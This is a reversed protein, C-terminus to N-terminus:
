VPILAGLSWLEPHPHGLARTARPDAHPATRPRPPLHSTSTSSAPGSLLSSPPVRCSRTAVRSGAAVRLERHVLPRTHSPVCAPCQSTLVGNSPPGHTRERLLVCVPLGPRRRRTECGPPSHQSWAQVPHGPHVAPLQPGRRVLGEGGRPPCLRPRAPVPSGSPAGPSTLSAALATPPPKRSCSPDESHPSHPPGQSPLAPSPASPSVRSHVDEAKKREGSARM